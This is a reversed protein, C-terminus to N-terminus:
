VLHTRARGAGGAGAAGWTSRCTMCSVPSSATLAPTVSALLQQANDFAKTGIAVIAQLLAGRPADHRAMTEALERTKRAAAWLAQCRLYYGVLDRRM